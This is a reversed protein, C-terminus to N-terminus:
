CVIHKNMLYKVKRGELCLNCMHLRHQHFLHGKLQDISRFKSRRKAQAALAVQDEANDCVSCSLRCMARIMRYHDADDFYAQTDEHYWFDGAKGENVGSPFVSFDTVVRTYEGMAQSIPFYYIIINVHISNM